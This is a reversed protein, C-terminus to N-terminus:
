PKEFTGPPFAASTVVDKTFVVTADQHHATPFWLGDHQEWGEWTWREPPPQTGQLVFEWREVRHSKHDVFVKYRDGPTLGVGSFSMSVCDFTTDGAREEGDFKLTVGNDLMKYPMLFWYSDNVWMAEGRKIFTHLSDGALAHGDIWAAGHLTDGMTHVVVFAQGTRLKGEVRHRGTLREWNHRRTSRVTDHVSAGFSWSLGPLADWRQRGGLAELVQEAVRVAKPDSAPSAAPAPRPAALVTAFLCLALLRKM